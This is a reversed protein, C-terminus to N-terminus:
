ARGGKIPGHSNGVWLSWFGLSSWAACLWFPEQLSAMGLHDGSEASEACNALADLLQHLTESGACDAIQAGKSPLACNSSAVVALM